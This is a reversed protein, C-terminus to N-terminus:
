RLMHQGETLAPPFLPRIGPSGSGLGNSRQPAEFARDPHSTSKTGENNARSSIRLLIDEMFCVTIIREPFPPTPFLVTDDCIAKESAEWPKWSRTKPRNDHSLHSDEIDIDATGANRAHHSGEVSLDMLAVAAPIGDVHVVIQRHHTDSEKQAIRVVGYDPSARLLM